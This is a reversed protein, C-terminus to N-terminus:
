FSPIEATNLCKKAEDEPSLGHLLVLELVEGPQIFGGIDRYGLHRYFHQAYENAQTSTLVFAHGQRRMAEEWGSVLQRGAGRGRCAEEVYLLNMFPHEDWFDSWRLLGCVRGEEEAVFVRGQAVCEALRQVPILRDLRQLAPLDGPAALRITFM